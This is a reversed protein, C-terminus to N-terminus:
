KNWSIHLNEYDKESKNYFINLIVVDTELKEKLAWANGVCPKPQLRHFLFVHEMQNYKVHGAGFCVPRM